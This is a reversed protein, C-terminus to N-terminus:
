YRFSKIRKYLDAEEALFDAPLQAKPVYTSTPSLVTGMLSTKVSLKPTFVLRLKYGIQKAPRYDVLQRSYENKDPGDVPNASETAADFLFKFGQDTHALM